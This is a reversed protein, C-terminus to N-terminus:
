HYKGNTACFYRGPYNCELEFGDYKRKLEDAGDAGSVPCYDEYKSEDGFAGHNGSEQILIYGGCACRGLWRVGKDWVYLDHGYAYSGCNEVMRLKMHERAKEPDDMLFAECM